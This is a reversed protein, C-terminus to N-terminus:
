KKKATTKPAAAIAKALDGYQECKTGCLKKLSALDAKAKTMDGLMVFAEGRYEFAGLHKPDLTLATNYFALAGAPDGNKRTSYGLLNQVDANKPDAKAAEKLAVLADPWKKAAILSRADTLLTTVTKSAASAGPVTTAGLTLPAPAAGAVPPPTAPDGGTDAAHAALSPAGALGLVLALPIIRRTLSPMAM